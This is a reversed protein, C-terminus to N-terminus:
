AARHDEEIVIPRSVPERVRVLVSSRLTEPVPEDEDERREERADERELHVDRPAARATEERRLTPPAPESFLSGGSFLEAGQADTLVIRNPTSM